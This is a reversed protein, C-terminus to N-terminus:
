LAEATKKNIKRLNRHINEAVRTTTNEMPRGPVVNEFRGIWNM